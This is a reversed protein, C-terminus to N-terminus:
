PLTPWLKLFMKIELFCLKWCNQTHKSTQFFGFKGKFILLSYGLLSSGKKKKIIEMSCPQALASVCCMIYLWSKRDLACICSSNWLGTKKFVLTVTGGPKQWHLEMKKHWRTFLSALMQRTYHHGGLKYMLLIHCKIVSILGRFCGTNFQCIVVILVMPASYVSALMKFATLKCKRVRDQVIEIAEHPYHPSKYQM